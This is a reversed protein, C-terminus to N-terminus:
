SPLVSGQDPMQLVGRCATDTGVLYLRSKARTLAVYLLERREQPEIDDLGWVFVADAELGKFRMVTDVLLADQQRHEEFSWKAPRPLSLPRLLDYYFRKRASPAILVAIQEARVNEKSLLTALQVRLREAQKDPGAGTLLEIEAGPIPPPVMAEGRYFRMSADHIFRTNRCNKKLIYPPTSVLGLSPKTYVAQNVDCFLYLLSTNENQLLLEISVHFEPRFDQAEDILIADYRWDALELVSRALADPLQVNAEDGRPYARRAESLTDSSKEQLARKIGYKCLEHFTMAHLFEQLGEKEVIAKLHDGLPANFCLLLTRKQERALDKARMLALLTKGTGAGGTILARTHYTLHDFIVAQQETLRLRVAEEETMDTSLLSRATRSRCFLEEALALGQQGLPREQDGRHSSLCTEVWKKFWALERRGGRQWSKLEPGGLREVDDIHPFFVAHELHIRRPEWRPAAQLESLIVYKAKKAQGVPDLKQPGADPGTAHWEETEADYDIHRGGKVEIVLIGLNPHFLAFDAEVDRPPHEDTTIQLRYKVLWSDDLSDRCARYVRAEGDRKDASLANLQTEDLVPYMRAM